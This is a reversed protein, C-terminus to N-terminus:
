RRSSSFRDLFRTGFEQGLTEFARVAATLGSKESACLFAGPSNYDGTSFYNTCGCWNMCFAKMSCTLCPLASVADSGHGGHCAMRSLDIGSDLTGICHEDSVGDGVLRECPYIRGEPTFALERTGMSCRDGPSYGGNLTLAIKSDILSIFVPDDSHFFKIYLDAIKEYAAQMIPLDEEKWTASFDPNLYITHVGLDRFYRISQPLFAITEPRYVANVMLGPIAAAAMQINQEIIASSAAGNKFRRYRNHVEPIGDCSIGLSIAENQFFDLVEESLCSGNTVIQFETRGDSCIPHAKAIKFIRQLLAFELLPEGGFFGVHLKEGAPRRDQIFDFVRMATEETMTANRKGIYCYSCDLNCAQTILLVTKM